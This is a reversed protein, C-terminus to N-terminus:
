CFIGFFHFGSRVFWESSFFFFCGKAGLSGRGYAWRRFGASKRRWEQRLAELPRTSRDPPATQTKNQKPPFGQSAMNNLFFM